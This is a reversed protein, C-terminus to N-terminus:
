IQDMFSVIREWTMEKITSKGIANVMPFKIKGDSIKKDQALYDVINEKLLNRPLSVPLGFETLLNVIRLIDQAPMGSLSRAIRSELVMGAAVAEGHKIGRYHSGAELIHGVTHGFNLLSRIGSIEKEDAEVIDRKIEICRAIVNQMIQIDGAIIKARNSELVDFLEADRIIATKILEAMGNRFEKPPLTNLLGIDALVLDPQYFSGILNKGAAHNVGTKGGVSADVQALLTTPINILRCGRKLTAAVFGALDTIVGGGLGLISDSRDFQRSLLIDYILSVTKLSKYREGDPIIVPYVEIGVSTLQTEVRALALGAVLPNSIVACRRPIKDIWATLTALIGNGVIVSYESTATKVEITTPEDFTKEMAPIDVQSLIIDAIQDPTKAKTDIMIDAFDYVGKRNEFLEELGGAMKLLPRTDDSALRQKVTETDVALHVVTGMASMIKRNHEDLVMGGGTAIITNQIDRISRLTKKELRRFYAEGHSQFIANISRNETLEIMRDTYLFTLGSRQALAKAVSDKGSGMFGILIINQM